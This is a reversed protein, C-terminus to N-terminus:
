SKQDQHAMQLRKLLLFHFLLAPGVQVAAQLTFRDAVRYDFGIRKQIGHGPSITYDVVQNSGEITKIGSYIVDGGSSAGLGLYFRWNSEQAHAALSASAVTICIILKKM